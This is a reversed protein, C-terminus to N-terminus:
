ERPLYQHVSSNHLRWKEDIKKLIRIEHSYIKQGDELMNVEQSFTVYATNGDILVHYDYKKTASQGSEPIIDSMQLLEVKTLHLHVGDPTSADITTNDDVIWFEELVKSFPKGLYAVTEAEITLKIALEDASQAYSFIASVEFFLILLTTYKKM